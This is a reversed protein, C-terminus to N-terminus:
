VSFMNVFINPYFWFEMVVLSVERSSFKVLKM